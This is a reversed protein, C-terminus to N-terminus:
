LPVYRAKLDKTQNLVTFCESVGNPARGNVHASGLKVLNLTYFDHFKPSKTQAFLPDKHSNYPSCTAVRLAKKQTSFLESTLSKTAGGWIEVCYELHSVV